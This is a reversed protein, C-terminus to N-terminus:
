TPELYFGEEILATELERIIEAQKETPIKLPMECAVALIGKGKQNLLSKETAFKTLAKWYDAGKELVYEQDRIGSDVEQLDSAEDDRDELEEADICDDFVSTSLPIKLEAIREWCLDRKCWETVNSYMEPPNQIDSNVNEAITMLQMELAPSLKQRLWIKSLDLYRGKSSLMLVLNAVSYTVINAKYGGYWNQKMINRDLYRFLLAKAILRQFYLENFKADDRDWKSGIKSAFFAFNKQAGRSVIQPLMKASHDFKALDTKTFM